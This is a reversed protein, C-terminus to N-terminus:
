RVRTCIIAYPSYSNFKERLRDVGSLMHAGVLDNLQM